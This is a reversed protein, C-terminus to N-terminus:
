NPDYFLRTTNGRGILLAENTLNEKIVNVHGLITPVILEPLPLWAEATMNFELRTKAKQDYGAEKESTDSSGEFRLQVSGQLHQDCMVFEALPNFRTLIQELAYEADRKWSSWITLTYKVLFPVPRRILAVRDM